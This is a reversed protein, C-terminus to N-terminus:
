VLEDDELPPDAPYDFITSVSLAFGPLVDGGPLVDDDLYPTPRLGNALTYVDVRRSITHVIWVMAVGAQQYELLKLELESDRDSPSVVEVVLDPVIEPYSRVRRPLRERRVFSLDPFRSPKKSSGPPRKLFRYEPSSDLVEGLNHASAYNRLHQILRSCIMGHEFNPMADEEVLEAQYDVPPGLYETAM